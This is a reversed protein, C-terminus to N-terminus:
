AIGKADMGLACRLEHELLMRDSCCRHAFCFLQRTGLAYTVLADMGLASYHGHELAHSSCLMWAWVSTNNMNVIVNTNWTCVPGRADMRSDM